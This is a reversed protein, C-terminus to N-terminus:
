PGSANDLDLTKEFSKESTGFTMRVPGFRGGTGPAPQGSIVVVVSGSPGADIADADLFGNGEVFVTMAAVDGAYPFTVRWQHKGAETRAVKAPRDNDPVPLQGRAVALRGAEEAGLKLGTAPSIDLKGNLPICMTGCVAFDLSLALRYDKGERKGSIPLILGHKYGWAKGGAGDDFRAPFPFGVALESLASSGSFDFMPPVGSDGAQRWYTKFGEALAIELGGTLADAPADTDLLLRIRAERFDVWPSALIDARAANQAVFFLVLSMLFRKMGGSYAPLPELGIFLETVGDADACPPM